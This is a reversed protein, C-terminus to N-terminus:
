IRVKLVPRLILASAMSVVFFYIIWSDTGSPWSPRDPYDISISQVISDPKLPKEAPYTLIGLWNRDPRASSTRMFGEGVVLDKEVSGESTNLIIRHTGPELPEIEWCIENKAFLKVPGIKTEVAPTPDLTVSPWPKDIYANLKVTVVAQEGPLLPRCQYWLALQSLLMSLPLIMVAMPRLAHFLLMLAGRLVRLEAKVTVSISDKYLRMALVNAKIEDKIKGIARQNSTCKYVILVLLGTLIAIITNSLWGPLFAIPALLFRGLTNALLNLFSIIYAFLNTV